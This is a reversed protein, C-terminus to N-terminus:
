RPRACRWPARIGAAAWYYFFFFASSPPSRIGFIAGPIGSRRASIVSGLVGGTSASQKSMLRPQIINMLVFWGIVMIILVARWTRSFFSRCPGPPTVLPFRDSSRSRRCCAQATATVPLYPLGLLASAVMSISGYMLGM